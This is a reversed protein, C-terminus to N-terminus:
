VGSFVLWQHYTMPTDDYAIPWPYYPVDFQAPWTQFIIHLIKQLYYPDNLAFVPIDLITKLFTMPERLGVFVNYWIKRSWIYYDITRNEKHILHLGNKRGNHVYNDIDIPYNGGYTRDLLYAQFYEFPALKRHLHICTIVVRKKNSNPNLCKKIIEFLLNYKHQDPYANETTNLFHETSGNLVVADFKGYLSEPINWVSSLICDYGKEILYKHQDPSLTLGVVKKCKVTYKLYKLFEGNGCGIELITSNEDALCNNAMWEFKPEIADKLTLHANCNHNGETYTDIDKVLKSGWLTDLWRYCNITKYDYPDFSYGKQHIFEIIFELGLVILVASLISIQKKNVLLIVTLITFNRILCHFSIRRKPDLYLQFLIMIIFLSVYFTINKKNFFTNKNFSINKSM